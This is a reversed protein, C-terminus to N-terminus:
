SEMPFWGEPYADGAEGAEWPPAADVFQPRGGLGLGTFSSPAGSGGSGGSASSVQDEVVPGSGCAYGGTLSIGGVVIVRFMQNM